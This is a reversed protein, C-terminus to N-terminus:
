IERPRLSQVHVSEVDFDVGYYWLGAQHQIFYDRVPALTKDTHEPRFGSLMALVWDVLPVAGYRDHLGRSVITVTFGMERPKIVAHTDNHKPYNSKAYNVLLAGNAHNLRYNSPKEPYFEAVLDTGVISKLQDVISQTIAKTQSREPIAM